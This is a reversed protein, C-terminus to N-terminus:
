RFIIDRCLGTKNSDVMLYSWGFRICVQPAYKLHVPAAPYFSCCFDRWVCYFKVAALNVLM